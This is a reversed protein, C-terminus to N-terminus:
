DVFSQNFWYTSWFNLSFLFTLHRPILSLKELYTHNWKQRLSSSPCTSLIILMTLPMVPSVSCSPCIHSVFNQLTHKSFLSNFPLFSSAWFSLAATHWSPHVKQKRDYLMKTASANGRIFNHLSYNGSQFCISEDPSFTSLHPHYSLPKPLGNEEVPVLPTEQLSDRPWSNALRLSALKYTKRPVFQLSTALPMRPAGMPFGLYEQPLGVKTQTLQPGPLVWDPFQSHEHFAHLCLAPLSPSPSDVPVHPLPIRVPASQSFLPRRCLFVAVALGHDLLPHASSYVGDREEQRGEGAPCKRDALASALPCPQRVSATWIPWGGPTCFLTIRPSHNQIDLVAFLRVSHCAWLLSQNVAQMGRLPDGKTSGKWREREVRM